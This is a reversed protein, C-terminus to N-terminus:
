LAETLLNWGLKVIVAAMVLVITTTVLGGIIIFARRAFEEVLRDFNERQMM